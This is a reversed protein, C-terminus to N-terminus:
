ESQLQTFMSKTFRSEASRFQRKAPSRKEQQNNCDILDISHYDRNSFLYNGNAFAATEMSWTRNSHRHWMPRRLYIHISSFITWPSEVLVQSLLHSSHCCYKCRRHSFDKALVSRYRYAVLIIRRIYMNGWSGYLNQSRHYQCKYMLDPAPIPRLEGCITLIRM